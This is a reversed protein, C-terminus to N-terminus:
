RGTRTGLGSAGPVYKWRPPRVSVEDKHIYSTRRGWHQLADKGRKFTSTKWEMELYDGPGHKLLTHIEKIAQILIKDVKDRMEPKM